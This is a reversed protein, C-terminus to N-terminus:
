QIYYKERQGVVYLIVIKYSTEKRSYGIQISNEHLLIHHKLYFKVCANTNNPMKCQADHTEDPM